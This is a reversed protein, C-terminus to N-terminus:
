LFGNGRGYAPLLFRKERGEERKREKKKKVVRSFIRYYAHRRLLNNLFVAGTLAIKGTFHIRRVLKEGPSLQFDIFHADLRVHQCVHMFTNRDRRTSFGVLVLNVSKSRLAFKNELERRRRRGFFYYLTYLFIFIFIIYLKSPRFFLSLPVSIFYFLSPIFNFRSTVILARWNIKAVFYPGRGSSEIKIIPGPLGPFITQRRPLHAPRRRPFSQLVSFPFRLDRCEPRSFHRTVRLLPPDPPLPEPWSSLSLSPALCIVFTRCYSPRSTSVKESYSSSSSSSLLPFYICSKFPFSPLSAVFRSYKIGQEGRIPPIRFSKNLRFIYVYLNM